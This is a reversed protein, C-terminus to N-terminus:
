DRIYESQNIHIQELFPMHQLQDLLWSDFLQIIQVKNFKFKKRGRMTWGTPLPRFINSTSIMSDSITEQLDQDIWTSRKESGTSSHRQLIYKFEHENRLGSIKFIQLRSFTKLLEVLDEYTNLPRVFRISLSTLTDRRSALTGKLTTPWLQNAAISINSLQASQRSILNSFHQGSVEGGFLLSLHLSNLKPCSDHIIRGMTTSDFENINSKSILWVLSELSSMAKFMTELTKQTLSCYELRLHTLARFSDGPLRIDGWIHTSYLKLTKLNPKNKFISEAKANDFVYSRLRLEVLRSLTSVVPVIDTPIYEPVKNGGDAQIDLLHTKQKSLTIAYFFRDSDLILERIKTALQLNIPREADFCDYSYNRHQLNVTRFLYSYSSLVIRPINVKKKRLTKEDYVYWLAPLMAERWM